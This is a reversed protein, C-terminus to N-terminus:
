ARRGKAPYAKPDSKIGRRACEDAWNKRKDADTWDPRAMLVSWDGGTM